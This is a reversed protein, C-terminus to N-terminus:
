AAERGAGARALDHLAQEAEDLLRKLKVRESQSLRNSALLRQCHIAVKRHSHVLFDTVGRDAM